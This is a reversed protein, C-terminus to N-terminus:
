HFYGSGRINPHTIAPAEVAKAAARDRGTELISVISRYRLAGIELAKAAVSEVRENPVGRMHQLVGICTRFGQEPHRRSALIAIILAETNPGIGAAWNRFREPTWAAYRRHASPMHETLTGHAPGGHRREHAAVRQGRHFAEITRETIRVDVQQGILGFPVSYFFREIEIHNDLGVQAFRWEAYVYPESPLERLAPKEITELLEQRSVGLRRMVAGNLRQLIERIARNAEALSFFTQHRLRGLIYSQALRVGAEVKAKDKPRRPRAPLIGIEYHAAM